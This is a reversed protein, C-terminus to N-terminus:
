QRHAEVETRGGAPHSRRLLARIRALLVEFTFPKVMYDDAGMKLGKVKDYEQGRATLMIVPVDSTERIRMCLEWGDMGPMMIDLLILDPRENFFVRLGEPTSAATFITYGLERLFIELMKVLGPDDDIVLIKKMSQNEPRANAVIIVLVWKAQLTFPEANSSDVVVLNMQPPSGNIPKGTLKDQSNIQFPSHDILTSLADILRQNHAAQDYAM